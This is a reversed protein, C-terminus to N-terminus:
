KIESETLPYWVKETPSYFQIMMGDKSDSIVYKKAQEISKWVEESNSQSNHRFFVKEMAEMVEKEQYGKQKLYEQNTIFKHNKLDYLYGEINSGLSQNLCHDYEDVTMIISVVDGVINARIGSEIRLAYNYENKINPCKTEDITYSKVKEYLTNSKQNLKEVVKLLEKDKINTKIQSFYLKDYMGTKSFEIQKDYNVSIKYNTKEEKEKEDNSHFLALFTTIIIIVILVVIGVIAVINEKKM